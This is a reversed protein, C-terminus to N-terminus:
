VFKEVDQDDDKANGDRAESLNLKGPGAKEELDPASAKFSNAYNHNLDHEAAFAEVHVREDTEVVICGDTGNHIEEDGENGLEWLEFPLVGDM